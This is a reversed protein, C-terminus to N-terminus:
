YDPHNNFKDHITQEDILLSNFFEGIKSSDFSNFTTYKTEEKSDEWCSNGYVIYNVGKIILLNNELECKFYDDSSKYNNAEITLQKVILPILIENSLELISSM